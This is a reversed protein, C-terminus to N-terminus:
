PPSWRRTSTKKWYLDRKLIMAIQSSTSGFERALKKATTPKKDKVFDKVKDVLESRAIVENEATSQNWLIVRKDDTAM